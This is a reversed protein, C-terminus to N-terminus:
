RRLWLSAHAPRFTDDVAGLLDARVEDLDVENRLRAALQDLTLAADYRSRYFREDVIRQLRSRLPAFLIVVALTSGAVALESRAALPRLLTGLGLVAAFYTAALLASLAGYVITRNILVDIDYLRYRLIAVAVAIPIATVGLTLLVTLLALPLGLAVIVTGTLAAVAGGYALWKLQQRETGRARRLRWIISGLSLVSTVLLLSISVSLLTYPGDPWGYLGFPNPIPLLAIHTPLLAMAVAFGVTGLVGLAAVPRWRPSPLRGDPFLLLLLTILPGVYLATTWSFLWAAIVGGPAGPGYLSYVAYAAAANVFCAVLGAYALIWGLPHSPRRALILIGPIELALISAYFVLTRPPFFYSPAGPSLAILVSSAVLGAACALGAGVAVRRGLRASM